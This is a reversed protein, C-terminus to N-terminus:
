VEEFEFTNSGDAKGESHEIDVIEKRPKIVIHPKIREEISKTSLFPTQVITSTRHKYIARGVVDPLHEAGSQDLVVRSATDDEVKFCLRGESNRKVSKPVVDQTPHQTATILRFGYVRSLRAIKSLYYECQMKMKKIEKIPEESVSLEAIEDIIIFHRDKITSDKIDRIGLRKMKIAMAQMSEYVNELAELAKEPEEAYNVVQKCHEYRGLEMGGKLDILTFTVHDPHNRLLSNIMLQIFTSKGGGTLGAILMHFVVEFDHFILGQRSIGIPIKWGKVNELEDSWEFFSPIQDNYVKIRLMGDFKLEIEKRSVKRTTIIKKLQKLVNQNWNIKMFDALNLEFYKHRINLGDELIHIESEIKKRNFGLPLQYVYEVGGKFKTKRQIRITEGNVGNWGSNAFLRQIKDADNSVSGNNKLYAYGTVGAMLISSGIEFIM